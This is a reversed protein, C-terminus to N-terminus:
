CVRYLGVLLRLGVLSRLGVLRHLGVLLRLGILSGLGVLRHLGVLLRLGVLSSLRVLRHLGVLLHLAPLHVAGHELLADGVRAFLPIGCALDRIDEQRLFALNCPRIM